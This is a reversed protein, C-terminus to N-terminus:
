VGGKYGFLLYCLIVNPRLVWIEDCEHLKHKTKTDVALESHSVPMLFIDPASASFAQICGQVELERVTYLKLETSYTALDEDKNPSWLVEIKNSQQGSM